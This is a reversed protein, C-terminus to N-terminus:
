QRPNRTVAFVRDNSPTTANPEFIVMKSPGYLTQVNVTFVDGAAVEIAACQGDSGLFTCLLYNGADLRRAYAGNAQIELTPLDMAVATNAQSADAVRLNTQWVELTTNGASCGCCNNECADTRYAIVGAVGQDITASHPRQVAECAAEDCSSECGLGLLLVVATYASGFRTRQAISMYKEIEVKM